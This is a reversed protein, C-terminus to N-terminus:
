LKPMVIEFLLMNVPQMIKFPIYQRHLWYCGSYKGAPDSSPSGTWRGLLWPCTLNLPIRELFFDLTKLQVDM